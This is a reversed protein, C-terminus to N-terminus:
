WPHYEQVSIVKMFIALGIFALMVLLASYGIVTYVSANYLSELFRLAYARVAGDREEVQKAM